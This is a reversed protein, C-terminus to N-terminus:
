PTGLPLSEMLDFNPREFATVTRGNSHNWKRRQDCGTM